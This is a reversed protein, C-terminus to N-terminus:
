ELPCPGVLITREGGDQEERPWRRTGFVHYKGCYCSLQPDTPHPAYIEFLVEALADEWDRIAAQHEREWALQQETPQGTPYESGAQRVTAALARLQAAAEHIDSLQMPAVRPGVDQGACATRSAPLREDGSDPLECNRSVTARHRGSRVGSGAHTLVRPKRHRGRHRRGAPKATRRAAAYAAILISLTGDLVTAANDGLLRIM